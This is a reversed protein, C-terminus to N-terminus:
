AEMLEKYTIPGERLIFLDEDVIKVVTSPVALPECEGKVIADIKNEFYEFVDSDKLAPKKGSVNASPVLLPVGVEDIMDLVFKDDPIRFGLYETGHDLYNDVKKKIKLVLTIKGPMYKDIIRKTKNSIEVFAEIQKIDSCMLTFPKNEPREKVSVLKNYAEESNSICGLGFVTETPFAVLGGEKLIKAAKKYESKDLFQM